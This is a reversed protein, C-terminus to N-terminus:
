QHAVQPTRDSHRDSSLAEIRQRILAATDAPTLATGAVLDFTAVLKGVDADDEVWRGDGSYEVYAAPPDQPDPFELITADGSMTGYAGASFPVIQITVNPLEALELLRLLQQRMVEPGGVIRHIVAEDLVAHVVLPDRGRLCGQRSIRSDVMRELEADLLRFGSPAATVAMAYDYTQLLGHVVLSATIKETGAEAEARLFSRLRPTAYSPLLVRTNDQKADEWLALAETVEVDSGGYLQVLARLEMRRCLSDGSEMRTITPRRVGLTAAAEETTHASRERLERLYKGIRRKRRTQTLPM